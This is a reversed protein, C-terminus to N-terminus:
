WLAGFHDWLRAGGFVLSGFFVVSLVFTLCACLFCVGDRELAALALFLVTWSPIGNSFPIPLPLLLFVGSIALLVGSLRQMWRHEQLVSLRPRVFWEFFRLVRHGFRLVQDLFGVPLPRTLLRRPLWFSQHLAQRIGTILILVGFVVSLGPLPIPTLFPISCIALVFHFGRGKTAFLLEELTLSKGRFEDALARLQVSFAVEVPRSGPEVSVSNM